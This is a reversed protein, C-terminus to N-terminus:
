FVPLLPSYLPSFFAESSLLPLLSIVIEFLDPSIELQKLIDM